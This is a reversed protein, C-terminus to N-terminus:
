QQLLTTKLKSDKKWLLAALSLSVVVMLTTITGVSAYSKAYFFGAVQLGIITFVWKTTSILASIKGKAEPIKDLTLVFIANCPVVFGISLMLMTLTINLPTAINFIILLPNVILFGGILFLSVYLCLKKGFLKILSGSIISFVGFTLTLAGQYFGFNYLSVGLAETYLIPALGVFSYYAGITLCLMIVYLMTIKNKLVPIYEKLSIRLNSNKIKDSPVFIQFAIAAIIGLILLLRFNGKWGFYITMYSGITPALCISLTIVGNLLAMVREQMETPYREIAIIFGLVMAPAVGAGQLIRGFILVEFSSSLACVVSGAIFILFGYIIVRKKGYKDGLNGAYLAAICHSILNVSLILEAKFASLNFVEQLQPFSPIVIDIEAAAVFVSFIITLFLM